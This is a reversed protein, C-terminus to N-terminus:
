ISATDPHFIETFFMQLYAWSRQSATDNYASGIDPNNARPNTFSHMTHGFTHLQWDARLQTMEKEFDQVTGAPVYPDNHGHLVLIRTNIKKNTVEKPADLLGHFSVVGSIDAGTRALDLVVMGGFCYGIAAIRNTNGYHLTKAFDYAALIRRQLLGRDEKLKSMLISCENKDSSTKGNGYMDIAFAIYGLQAIEQAKQRAFGAVGEWTHAIMIIPQNSAITTDRVIFGQMRFGDLFYEVETTSISM